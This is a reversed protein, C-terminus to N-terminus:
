KSVLLQAYLLNWAIAANNGSPGTLPCLWSIYSQVRLLCVRAHTTPMHSGHNWGGSMRAQTATHQDRSSTTISEALFAWPGYRQYEDPALATAPGARHNENQDCSAAGGLFFFVDPCQSPCSKQSLDELMCAVSLAVWYLHRYLFVSPGGAQSAAKALARPHPTNPKRHERRVPENLAYSSSNPCSFPSTLDCLHDTM